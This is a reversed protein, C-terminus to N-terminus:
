QDAKRESTFRTVGSMVMLFGIMAALQFSLLPGDSVSSKM